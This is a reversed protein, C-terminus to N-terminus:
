KRGRGLWRPLPLRANPHENPQSLDHDQGPQGLHSHEARQSGPKRKIAGGYREGATAGDPRKNAPM